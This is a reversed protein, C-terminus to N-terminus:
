IRFLRSFRTGNSVSIACLPCTKVLSSFSPLSCTQVSTDQSKASSKAHDRCSTGGVGGVCLVWTSTAKRLSTRLGANKVAHEQGDRQQTFAQSNGRTMDSGLYITSVRCRHVGSNDLWGSSRWSQRCEGGRRSRRPVENVQLRGATTLKLQAIPRQLVSHCLM